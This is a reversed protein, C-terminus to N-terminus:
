NSTRSPSRSTTMPAEECAPWSMLLEAEATLFVVPIDKLEVDAKLASLVQYGDFQPMEVDLLLVDPLEQRCCEVAALGDVAEIVRYGEDELSGRVVARVVLSDDAILVTAATV